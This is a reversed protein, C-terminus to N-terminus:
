RRQKLRFAQSGAPRELVSVAEGSIVDMSRDSHSSLPRGGMPKRPSPSPSHTSRDKTPSPSRSEHKKTPTTENMALSSIAQRIAPSRPKTPSSSSRHHYTDYPRYSHATEYSLDSGYSYASSASSSVISSADSSLSPIPPSSGGSTYHFYGPVNTYAPPPPPPITPSADTSKQNTTSENTTTTTTTTTTTKEDAIDQNTSAQATAAPPPIAMAVASTRQLIKFLTWVILIISGWIAMFRLATAFYSAGIDLYFELTPRIYSILLGTAIGTTFSAPSSPWIYPVIKLKFQMKKQQFKSLPPHSPESRNMTTPQKDPELKPKMAAGHETAPAVAPQPPPAAPPVHSRPPPMEQPHQQHHIHHHQPHPQQQQYAVVTPQQAQRAHQHVPQQQYYNTVPHHQTQQPQQQYHHHLHSSSHHHKCKPAPQLNPSKQLELIRSAVLPSPSGRSSSRSLSRPPSHAEM